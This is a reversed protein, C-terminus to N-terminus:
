ENKAEAFLHACFYTAFAVAVPMLLGIAIAGIFDGVVPVLSFLMGICIIAVVIVGFVCTQLITGFICKNWSVAQIMDSIESLNFASSFKGTRAFLVGAPNGIVMVLVFLVVVIVWAIGIGVAYILNQTQETFTSGWTSVGYILFAGLLVQVIWYILLIITALFGNRLTTGFEKFDPTKNLLTKVYAGAIIFTLIVAVAILIIGLVSNAPVSVNTWTGTVIGEIYCIIATMLTILLWPGPNKFTGKVASKLAMGTIEFLDAM